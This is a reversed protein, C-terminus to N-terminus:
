GARMLLPPGRRGRSRMMMMRMMRSMQRERGVVNGSTMLSHGNYRTRLPAAKAQEPVPELSAARNPAAASSAVVPSTSQKKQHSARQLFLSVDIVM